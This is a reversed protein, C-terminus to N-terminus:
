DYDVPINSFLEKIFEQFDTIECLKSVKRKSLTAKYILPFIKKNLVSKRAIAGIFILQVDFKSWHIPKDLTIVTFYSEKSSEVICHPIAVLENIETSSINERSVLNQIAVEDMLKKEILHSEIFSYVEEKTKLKQKPYFLDEKFVNKYEYINRCDSLYEDIRSVDTDLVLPNVNIIQKDIKKRIKENIPVCSIILKIDNLDMKQLNHVSSVSVIDITQIKNLLKMKLLESMGVGSECVVVVKFKFMSNMREIAAAFHLAIFGISNEDISIQYEKYLIQSCLIAYNYAEIYKTKIMDLLPNNMLASLYMRSFSTYLHEILGKRLEDDYFFDQQYVEKIEGFFREVIKEYFETGYEKKKTIDNGMLFTIYAMEKENVRIGYYRYFLENIQKSFDSLHNFFHIKDFQLDIEKHISWRYVLVIFYKIVDMTRTNNESFGNKELLRLLEKFFSPYDRCYKLLINNKMDSLEEDLFFIKVMYNRITNESGILYYGYHARNSLIIQENELLKRVEKIYKNITSRSIFLQAAIIDQTIYNNTLLLKIIEYVIEDDIMLNKSIIMQKKWYANFCNNDKLEIYYGNKNAVITAGHDKILDNINWVIRKVTRSSIGLKEAIYNSSLSQKEKLLLDIFQNNLNM